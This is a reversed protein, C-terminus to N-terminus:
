DRIESAPAHTDVLELVKVWTQLPKRLESALRWAAPTGGGDRANADDQARSGPSSVRRRATHHALPEASTALGRGLRVLAEGEGLPTVYM